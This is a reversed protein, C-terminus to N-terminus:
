MILQSYKREKKQGVLVEGRESGSHPFIESYSINLSRMLTPCTIMKLLLIIFFHIETTKFM